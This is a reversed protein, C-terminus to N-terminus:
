DEGAMLPTRCYPELKAMAMPNDRVRVVGFEGFGAVGFKADKLGFTESGLIRNAQLVPKPVSAWGWRATVQLLARKTTSIPFRKEGVARIVWYPWGPKGEVVGNLPELQFDTGETWTTEFVGDEDDDTKVVLGATTHFDDVSVVDADRARYVRASASGADHFQRGTHTNVEEAVSSLADDIQDDSVEGPITAYKKFSDRSIYPDGLAM